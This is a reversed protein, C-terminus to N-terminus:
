PTREKTATRCVYKRLTRGSAQHRLVRDPPRDPHPSDMGGSKLLFPNERSDCALVPTTGIINWSRVAPRLPNHQELALQVVVSGGDRVRPSERRKFSFTTRSVRRVPTWARSLAHLRLLLAAPYDGLSRGEVTKGEIGAAGRRLRLSRTM